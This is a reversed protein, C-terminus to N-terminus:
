VYLKQYAKKEDESEFQPLFEVFGVDNIDEDKVDPEAFHARFTNMAVAPLRPRAAQGDEGVSTVLERFVNLHEVVPAPTKFVLVVIYIDPCAKRAKEVYVSRAKKNRMTMDVVVSRGDGLYGVLLKGYKAPTLPQLDSGVVAFGRPVLHREAFTTKGSAPSGCLIVMTQVKKQKEGKSMSESHMLLRKVISAPTVIRRLVDASEAAGVRVEVYRADYGKVPLGDVGEGGDFYEEPTAFRLGANLAFKRDSDSFDKTAGPRKERGAADGCFVSTEMDVEGCVKELLADWMGLAPKRFKDKGGAAFFAVPVGIKAAIAEFREHIFDLKVNGRALGAQNSFVVLLAGAAHDSHLKPLVRPSLFAWDGPTRAFKAGSAVRILTGDLDFACVRRPSPSSTAAEALWAPPLLAHLTSQHQKPWNPRAVKSPLGVDVTAGTTTDSASASFSFTAQRLRKKPAM